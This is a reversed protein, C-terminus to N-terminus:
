SRREVSFFTKFVTLCHFGMFHSVDSMASEEEEFSIAGVSPKCRHPVLIFFMNLYRM